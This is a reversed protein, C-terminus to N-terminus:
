DVNEFGPSKQPLGQYGPNTVVTNRILKNSFDANELMKSLINERKVLESGTSNSKLDPNKQILEHWVTAEMTWAYTEENMSNYEDQHLAEHSLLAALAEPPANSHKQNVYIVLLGNKKMGLADYNSYSQNISGLNYFYVKVPKGTLNEGLIAKKAFEGSTGKMCEFAKIIRSDGTSTAYVRSLDESQVTSPSSTSQIKAEVGVGGYM